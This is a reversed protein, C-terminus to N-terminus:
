NLHQRRLESPTVSFHKKFATVFNAVHKYGANYAVEGISLGEMILANRAGELRSIRIYEQVTMQFAGKFRRQLTSPSLNLQAAIFSLSSNEQALEDVQAKLKMSCKRDLNSLNPKALPAEPIGSLMTTIAHNLVKLTCMENQLENVLSQEARQIEFLQQALSLFNEDVPIEIVQNGLSLLGHLPDNLEKTRSLLWEKPVSLALKKVYQGRCLHRTFIDSKSVLNIFAKPTHEADIEFQRQGVSFSVKGKFLIIINFCPTLEVSSSASEAETMDCAHIRINRQGGRFLMDGHALVASRGSSQGGILVHSHGADTLLQKLEQQSIPTNRM